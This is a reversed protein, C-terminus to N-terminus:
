KSVQENLAKALEKQVERFGRMYTNFRDVLQQPVDVEDGYKEVIFLVPWWEDESVFIKTM